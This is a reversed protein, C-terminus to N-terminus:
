DFKKLGKEDIDKCPIGADGEEGDKESLKRKDGQWTPISEWVSKRRQLIWWSEWDTTGKTTNGYHEPTSPNSALLFQYCHSTLAATNDKLSQALHFPQM